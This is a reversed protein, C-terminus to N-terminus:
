RLDFGKQLLTVDGRLSTTIVNQCGQLVEESGNDM